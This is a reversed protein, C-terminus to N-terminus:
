ISNRKSGELSRFREGIIEKVQYYFLIVVLILFAPGSLLLCSLLVLIISIDSLDIDM